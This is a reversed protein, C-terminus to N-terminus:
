KRDYKISCKLLFKLKLVFGPNFKQSYIFESYIDKTKLGFKTSNTCVSFWYKSIINKFINHQYIKNDDNAKILNNIWALILKLDEFKDLIKNTSLNIHTTIESEDPKLGLVELQALFIRKLFTKRYDKTTSNTINSSLFRYKLLPETLNAFKTYKVMRSWLEYDQSIQFEENYRFKHEDLVSKRMFVTPHMIVDRFLLEVKIEDHSLPLETLENYKGFFQINTGLVGVDSNDEMFSYQKLFREPKSIDDSDMRAIYKGKVIDLMKNLNKTLGINELNKLLVIRDDQKAYDELIILSTDSSCDDTIIFEFDSFSQNLISDVSEKLYLESNYVSMIVSIQPTNKSNM